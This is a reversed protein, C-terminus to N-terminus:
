AATEALFDEIENVEKDNLRLDGARMVGEAQHANRAGVIAGTVAPNHLTWAIAVEGISRNHRKAIERLREVLELNRSLNPETFDPNTRRWDDKPLKAARDRTMAGTLLGSAMPSYVIVGIGERLCYPLIEDEIERHVLSYPPQLSIVPAIAKARRLQQVNFNSVGIWRVKGERKLDAMTSWGEELAPSDPDPPWHIQYLDIVDISLRRLSDEVERRISDASLVKQVNGQADWRLGCKTFIYPRPGTWSKLTRAVVEESHGLGYVAATDIWNVGLELARHIAAISDNDDQSGWAFQWGSGGVAWAGYGVSTIHLD